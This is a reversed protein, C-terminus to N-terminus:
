IVRHRERGDVRIASLPRSPCLYECAGCGTCREVDIIPFKPAKPNEPDLSAMRIAGPPCHRACNDCSVGDVTIVCLERKWTAHGIQIATKHAATVRHIAGSPCVESCKTCEPRCYGREFSLEPQMLRAVDGSPQLVQNPCVSVCLQCGTCRRTFSRIGESGAPVIPAKRTPSQKKGIRALGGDGTEVKKPKAQAVASTALVAVISLAQRRSAGAATPPRKWAALRDTSKSLGYSIAGKPCKQTCNMCAVCRSYDVDKSKSNICSAKCNRACLGCGNCKDPDIRPKLLAFRSAFGLVTGVPCVTNCYLRGHKWSMALLVGFTGVAVALTSAGRLWVDVSYFAYSGAREALYALLNNGWLYVPGALTSVMRGFAGYPELLATLSGVGAIVSAVFLALFGYRVTHLPRLHSFRNRRRKGAIWSVVDQFVGLPCLTSCYIRGFLLTLLILAGVVGANLALLAPLFQIRALWGLWLHLTGTFDLFLLSIPVFFLVALSRRISRM